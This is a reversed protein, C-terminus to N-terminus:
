VEITRRRKRAEHFLVALCVVLVGISLASTEPGFAGGTIWDPGNYRSEFPALGRWDELGSLPLGTLLIAFNWGAHNAGVIWLNRTHVFVLTWFAGILTVAIMTTLSAVLGAGEVNALHQAAFLLSEVCLAPLTGWTNELMRFLVGRFGVEELMAAVVILGAAGLLGSHLGRAATVEYIGAAFLSLTTLSILAAGALAGLVIGGPAFRLEVIARKEILRIAAWYALLVVLLIGIRRVVSTAAEDLHFVSQINPLLLLRFLQVAGVITALVLLVKGVALAAVRWKLVM